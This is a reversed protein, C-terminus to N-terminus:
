FDPIRFLLTARRVWNHATISAEGTEKEKEKKGGKLPDCLAISKRQTGLTEPELKRRNQISPIPAISLAERGRGRGEGKPAQSISRIRLL